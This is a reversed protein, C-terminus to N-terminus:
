GHHYWPEKSLASRLAAAGDGLVPEGHGVLIRKAPLALLPDLTPVFRERYFALRHEDLEDQAWIRLEGGTTVLADGFAIASHDEIWLPLEARRPRGINFCRGGFPLPAGPEPSRVTVDPELRKAARREGWVDVRAPGYRAVIEATSRVHYPITIYVHIRTAAAALDDLLAAPGSDTAREHDRSGHEGRATGALLPDILLLQGDRVRLAFSAVERGFDGARWEPHPGAWRWLGPAIETPTAHM